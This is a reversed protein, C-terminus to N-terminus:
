VKGSFFDEQWKAPDAMVDRAITKATELYKSAIISLLAKDTIVGVIDPEDIVVYEKKDTRPYSENVACKASAADRFSGLRGEAHGNCDYTTGQWTGDRSETVAGTIAGTKIDVWLKVKSLTQNQWLYKKM